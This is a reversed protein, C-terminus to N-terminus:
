SITLSNSQAVLSHGVGLILSWAFISTDETEYYGEYIIEPEDGFTLNVQLLIVLTRFNRSIRYYWAQPTDVELRARVERLKPNEDCLHQTLMFDLSSKPAPEENVQAVQLGYFTAM